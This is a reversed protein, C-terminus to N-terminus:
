LDFHSKVNEATRDVLRHRAEMSAWAIHPTIYIKEKERITLLPSDKAIPEATLVDLAAGAIRREDLLQALAAEDVIGGRGMNLLYVTPKMLRLRSEDLLNRTQENLPCHVSVVDAIALLEDLPLHRYGADLNKGTTSTYIVEAGFASAIAAVRRGIAGMGIIGFRKGALEWFERDLHTFMPSAAYQGSKVYDDYYRGTHLLYFLMAFTCQAVSETSYGAVNKVAIRKKAAYALDVNNMGTAIICILELEPCADMVGRDIVVKNTIVVNHGRIRSIREDPGTLEWTTYDGLSTLTALNDLRGITAADLFVMQIPRMMTGGIKGVEKSFFDPSLVCIGVTAPLVEEFGMREYLPAGFKSAQLVVLPVGRRFAENVAERVCSEGFGRGRSMELTGVWYLGAIGHSYLTMAASVPRDGEYAVVWDNHPRILRAPTAFIQECVKVPLGLSQYSEKTVFAFDTLGAEDTIHRIAIGEPAPKEAFPRDIIMGPADSIPILKKQRCVAELSEDVHSRLHISFPSKKKVYFSRIREFIEEAHETSIDGLTMATCTTPFPCSGKTLLLDDQEHIEGSANWRTTERTYEALNLDGLNIKDDTNM